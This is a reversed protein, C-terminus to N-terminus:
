SWQRGGGGGGGGSVSIGSFPIPLIPGNTGAQGITSYTINHGWGGIGPSYAVYTETLYSSYPFNYTVNPIYGAPYTYTPITTPITITYTGAPVYGTTIRVFGGDGGTGFSSYSSGYGASTGRGGKNGVGVILITYTGGTSIYLYGSTTFSRGTTNYLSGHSNTHNVVAPTQLPYRLPIVDSGSKLFSM